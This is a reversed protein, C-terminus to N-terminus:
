QCAGSYSEPPRNVHRAGPLHTCAQSARVQLLLPKGVSKGLTNILDSSMSSQGPRGTSRGHFDVIVDGAQLGAIDAPSGPTVQVM